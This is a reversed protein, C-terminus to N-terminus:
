DVWAPEIEIVNENWLFLASLVVFTKIVKTKCFQESCAHTKTVKLVYQMM